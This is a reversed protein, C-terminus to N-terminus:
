DESEGLAFIGDFQNIKFSIGASYRCWSTKDQKPNHPKTVRDLRFESESKKMRDVRKDFASRCLVLDPCGGCDNYKDSCENLRRIVYNINLNKVRKSTIFEAGERM